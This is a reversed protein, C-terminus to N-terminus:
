ATTDFHICVIRDSSESLSADADLIGLYLHTGLRSHARISILLYSM